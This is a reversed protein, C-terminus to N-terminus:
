PIIAISLVLAGVVRVGVLVRGGAVVRGVDVGEKRRAQGEV